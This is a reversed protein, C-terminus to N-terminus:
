LGREPQDPEFLGSKRWWPAGAPASNSIRFEDFNRAGV